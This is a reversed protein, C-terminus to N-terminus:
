MPLANIERRVVFYFGGCVKIIENMRRFLLGYDSKFANVVNSISYLAFCVFEDCAELRESPVTDPREVYFM